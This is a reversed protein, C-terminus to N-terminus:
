MPSALCDDRKLNAQIATDLLKETSSEQALIWDISPEHWNIVTTYAEPDLDANRNDEGSADLFDTM